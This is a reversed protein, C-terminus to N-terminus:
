RPIPHAWKPGDFASRVTLTRGAIPTIANSSLGCTLYRNEYIGTADVSIPYAGIPHMGIRHVSMLHMGTLHFSTLNGWPM